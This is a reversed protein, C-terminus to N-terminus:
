LEYQAHAFHIYVCVVCINLYFVIGVYSICLACICIVYIVHMMCYARACVCVCAKM